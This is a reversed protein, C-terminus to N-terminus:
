YKFFYDWWKKPNSIKPTEETKVPPNENSNVAEKVISPKIVVVQEGSAQLNLKDKAEKEQYDRSELYAIKEQLDTNERNIREAEEEIKKIEKQIQKKKQTQKFVAAVAFFLVVVGALLFIKALLSGSKKENGRM